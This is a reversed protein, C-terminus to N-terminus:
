CPSLMSPPAIERYFPMFQPRLLSLQGTASSTMMRHAGEEGIGREAEAMADRRSPVMLIGHVSICVVGLVTGPARSM